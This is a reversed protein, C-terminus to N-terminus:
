KILHNDNDNDIYDFIDSNLNLIFNIHDDNITVPLYVIEDNRKCRLINCKSHTVIIYSPAPKFDAYIIHRTWNIINPNKNDPTFTISVMVLKGYGNNYMVDFKQKEFSKNKISLEYEKISFSIFNKIDSNISNYYSENLWLKIITDIDNVNVAGKSYDHINKVSMFGLQEYRQGITKSKDIKFQKIIEIGNKVDPDKILMMAKKATDTFKGISNTIFCLVIVVSIKSFNSSLLM